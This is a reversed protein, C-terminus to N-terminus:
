RAAAPRVPSAPANALVSEFHWRAERDVAPVCHACGTPNGVVLLAGTRLGPHQAAGSTQPGDAQAWASRRARHQVAEGQGRVSPPTVPHAPMEDGDLDNFGFPQRKVTL